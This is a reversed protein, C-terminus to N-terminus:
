VVVAASVAHRLHKQTRHGVRVPFYTIPHHLTKEIHILEMLTQSYTFVLFSLFLDLKRSDSTSSRTTCHNKCSKLALSALM